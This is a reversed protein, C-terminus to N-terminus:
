SLGPLLFLSFSEWVRKFQVFWGAYATTFASYAFAAIFGIGLFFVSNHLLNTWFRMHHGEGGDAFYSAILCVLGILAAGGTITKARSSFVFNEM